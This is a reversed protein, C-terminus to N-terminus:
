FLEVEESAAQLKAPKAEQPPPKDGSGLLYHHFHARVQELNQGALLGEGWGTARETLTPEWERGCRERILDEVYRLANVVHQQRQNRLDDGQMLSVIAAMAPSGPLQSGIEMLQASFAQASKGQANRLDEIEEKIALMVLAIFDLLEREAATPPAHNRIAAPTKAVPQKSHADVKRQNPQRQQPTVGNKRAM